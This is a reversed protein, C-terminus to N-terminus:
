TNDPGSQRATVSRRIATLNYKEAIAARGQGYHLEELLPMIETRWVLDIGGPRDYIDRHMFYSPGIAYDEDDIRENLADLLEATDSDIGNRELWRGLLEKVPSTRSHLEIFAFRRRMAADVLAISRDATNMTGIVFVNEPLSFQSDPSYQLNIAADRYELLFYLEGFVKALNSRNIEDIILIYPTAPNDKADEAFRRFPGSV